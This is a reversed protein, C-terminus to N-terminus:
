YSEYEYSFYLVGLSLTTYATLFLADIWSGVYFTDRFIMYFLGALYCTVAFGVFAVMTNRMVMSAKGEFYLYVIIGVEFLLLFDPVRYLMDLTFRESLHPVVINGVSILIFTAFICGAVGCVFMLLGRFAKSIKQRESFMGTYFYLGVILLFEATNYFVDALSPYPAPIRLALNYYLYVLNGAGWLILGWSLYQISRKADDTKKTLAAARLSLLGACMPILAMPINFAYNLETERIGGFFM